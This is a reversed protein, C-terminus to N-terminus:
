VHKGNISLYKQSPRKLVNEKQTRVGPGIEVAEGMWVLYMFRNRWDETTYERLFDTTYKRTGNEIKAVVDVDNM